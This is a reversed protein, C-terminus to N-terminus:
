LKRICPFVAYITRRSLIFDMAIYICAVDIPICQLEYWYNDEIVSVTSNDCLHSVGSSVIFNYVEVMTWDM